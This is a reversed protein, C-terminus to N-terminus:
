CVSSQREGHWIRSELVEALNLLLLARGHLREREGVGGTTRQREKLHRWTIVVSYIPLFLKGNLYNFSIASRRWQPSSM